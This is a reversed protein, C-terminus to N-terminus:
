RLCDHKAYIFWWLYEKKNQLLADGTTQNVFLFHKILLFSTNILWWERIYWGKIIHVYM